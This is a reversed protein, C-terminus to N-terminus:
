PAMVCRFGTHSFSSLPDTAMRASPRYGTCYNDACLFSGGKVIKKAIGPEDPDFSESQRVGTPNDKPSNKYYDPHFWDQTWEWVNGAMDYLGYGNPPFSGVPSTGAYGDSMKNKYPFEGQWINALPKSDQQPQDGWVYKKRDLGGRAAFEFQAETPIEKEAWRCYAEADYYTVHVVPHNERGKLDSNPGEPHKWNAGPKYVWWNLYNRMDVKQKPAQFVASGAVLKDPPVDPFDKPDPNREAYTIYGTQNVFKSFQQNTVPYKDIWFSVLKVQHAPRETALGDDSGMWFTGDKIYVMDKTQEPSRSQPAPSFLVNLLVLAAVVLSSGM